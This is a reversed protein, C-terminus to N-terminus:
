CQTMSTPEYFKVAYEASNKITLKMWIYALLMITIAIKLFELDIFFAFDQGELYISSYNKFHCVIM